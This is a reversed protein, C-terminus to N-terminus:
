TATIVGECRFNGIVTVGRPSINSGLADFFAIQSEHDLVTFQQVVEEEDLLGIVLWWM